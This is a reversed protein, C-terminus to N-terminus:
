QDVKNLCSQMSISTIQLYMSFRRKKADLTPCYWNLKKACLDNQLVM